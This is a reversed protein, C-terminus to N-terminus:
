AVRIAYEPGLEQLGDAFIIHPRFYISGSAPITLNACFPGPLVWPGATPASNNPYVAGGAYVSFSTANPHSANDWHLATHTTNGNGEARWCIQVASGATSVPPLGGTVSLRSAAVVVREESLSHNGDLIIHARMYRAGSATMTFNACFEGPVTVSVNAATFNGPYVAGGVYEGFSTANPHSANDFHIATHTSTGALGTVRWCISNAFNAPFIEHFDVFAINSTLNVPVSKEVSLLQTPPTGAALAHARLYLTANLSRLQACFTGPLRFSGTTTAPGNDPYVANPYETFSTANPHNTTDFHIATHGITGNGEVRWCVDATGGTAVSDTLSVVTIGTISAQTLNTIPTPPTPLVTPPTVTPVITPPTVTPPATPPTVTTPATPTATPTPTATATATPTPTPTQSGEDAACGALLSVTIISTVLLVPTRTMTGRARM